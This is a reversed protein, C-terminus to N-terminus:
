LVRRNVKGDHSPRDQREHISRLFGHSGSVRHVVQQERESRDGREAGRGAVVFRVRLAHGRLARGGRRDRRRDNLRHGHRLAIGRLDFRDLADLKAGPHGARDVRDVEFLSRAHRATLEEEADIRARVRRGEGLGLGREVAADPRDADKEVVEV